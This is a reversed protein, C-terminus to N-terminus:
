RATFEMWNQDATMTVMSRVRADEIRYKGVMARWSEEAQKAYAGVTEALTEELLTQM